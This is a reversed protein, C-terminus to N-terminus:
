AIGRETPFFSQFGRQFSVPVVGVPGNRQKAIILECPWVIDSRGEDFKKYYNESFLLLVMDTDQELAGSERLDSLRPRRSERDEPNRNLQSAAHVPVDLERALRKLSRSIYSVAEQRQTHATGPEVLQLYDIYVADIGHQSAMRRARARIELVTAAPTDDVIIRAPDIKAGAATVSRFEETTLLGARMKQFNVRGEAAIMRDLLHEKKMELSFVAVTKDERITAHRVLELLLATKGMGPRGAIMIFESDQFGTTMEDLKPIGSSLGTVVGSHHQLESLYEIRERLFDGVMSFSGSVNGEGIEFILSEAKDLLAEPESVEDFGYEAIRGGAEIMSRLIYKERVINAYYELSATTTTRDLLENLYFRGGAKEMEGREELHNALLVIDSPTGEEFLERIARFIIRHNAFNFHEPKLIEVLIPLTNEPELIAAGIVVQEAEVNKPLERGRLKSPM